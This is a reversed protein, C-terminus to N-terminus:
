RSSAYETCHVSKHTAGDTLNGTPGQTAWAMKNKADEYRADPAPTVQTMTWSTKVAKASKDPPPAKTATRAKATTIVARPKKGPVTSYDVQLTQKNDCKYRVSLSAPVDQAVAPLAFLLSGCIFASSRLYMM